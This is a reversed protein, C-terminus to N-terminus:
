CNFYQKRWFLVYTGTQKLLHNSIKLTDSSIPSPRSDKDPHVFPFMALQMNLTELDLISECVLYKLLEKVEYQLCGELIDHMIDPPLGDTVHYFRSTNLISNHHLGYTTAIHDHLPGGLSDCQQKHSLRTRAQFDEAYFKSPCLICCSIICFVIM